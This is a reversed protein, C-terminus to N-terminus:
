PAPAEILWAGQRKKIKWNEKEKELFMYAGINYMSFKTSQYCSEGRCDVVLVLAQTLSSDFGIRSFSVWWYFEKDNTGNNIGVGSPNVLIIDLTIPLYDKISSSTKNKEKFDSWTERKLNPFNKTDFGISSFASDAPINEKFEGSNTYEVIQFKDVHIGFYDNRQNELLLSYIDQEAQLVEAPTPKNHALFVFISAGIITFLIFFPFVTKIKM